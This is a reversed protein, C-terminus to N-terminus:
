GEYESWTYSLTGLVSCMRTVKILPSQKGFLIELVEELSELSLFLLAILTDCFLLELQKLVKLFFFFYVHVVIYYILIIAYFKNDIKNIYINIM